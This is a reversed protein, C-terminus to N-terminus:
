KIENNEYVFTVERKDSATIKILQDKKNYHYIISNGFRDEIKTVMLYVDLFFSSEPLHNRATILKNFTYKTGDPSYGIFGEGPQNALTTCSFRWNSQTKRPFKDDAVQLLPTLKEGSLSLIDGQWLGNRDVIKDHYRDNQNFGGPNLNGSCAKGRGWAGSYYKVDSPMKGGYDKLSLTTHINPTDLAWDGLNSRLLPNSQDSLTRSIKIDPGNGKAIFDTQNFTVTGTNLDILEGFLGKDLQKFANSAKSIRSMLDDDDDGSDAAMKTNCQAGKALCKQRSLVKQQRVQMDIEFSERDETSMADMLVHFYEQALEMEEQQEQTFDDDGALVPLSFAWLSSSFLLICYFFPKTM